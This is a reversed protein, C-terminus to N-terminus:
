KRLKKLRQRITPKTITRDHLLLFALVIAFCIPMMIDQAIFILAGIIVISLLNLSFKAYFPLSRPSEM